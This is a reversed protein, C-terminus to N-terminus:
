KQGCRGACGAARLPAVEPGFREAIASAGAESLTRWLADDNLLAVGRKAFGAALSEGVKGKVGAGFRVPAVLVRCQQHLLSLDTVWGHQHVLPLVERAMWRVADQNPVHDFSGVFLLGRHGQPGPVRDAVHHVNSLVRVDAEPARHADRVLTLDPDVLTLQSLEPLAADTAV